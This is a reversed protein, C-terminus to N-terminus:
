LIKFIKSSNQLIKFFKSSNQLIKFPAALPARFSTVFIFFYSFIHFFQYNEFFFKTSFIAPQVVPHGHKQNCDMQTGIGPGNRGTLQTPTEMAVPRSNNLTLGNGHRGEWRKGCPIQPFRPFIDFLCVFWLLDHKILRFRRRYGDFLESIKSSNQTTLAMKHHVIAAVMEALM